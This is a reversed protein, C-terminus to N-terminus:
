ASKLNMYFLLVGNKPKLSTLAYFLKHVNLFSVLNFLRFMMNNEQESSNM